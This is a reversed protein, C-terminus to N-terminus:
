GRPQSAREGHSETNEAETRRGVVDGPQDALHDVAGTGYAGSGPARSPAIAGFLIHAFPVFGARQLTRRSAVNSPSCRACPIAGLDYCIRKLEQVLYSGIGRRRFPENVDMYIDCYPPNYHFLVGGSAVATGDIEVVWKGGGQRDEMAAAIEEPPTVRRLAAGDVQLMTTADDRFVIRETGIDRAYTLCMVTSLTDSTQVEFAEPDSDALFTEFLEFSRSRREPAVYFEYVTPRNRWPGGVAVSGYGITTGADILAYELTWGSRTHISDHVIQGNMERRFAERLPAIESYDARRVTIPM